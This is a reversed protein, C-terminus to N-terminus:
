DCVGIVREFSKESPNSFRANSTGLTQCTGVVWPDGTFPVAVIFM